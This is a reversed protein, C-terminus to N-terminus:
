SESRHAGIRNLLGHLGAAFEQEFRDETLGGRLRHIVPYQEPDVDVLDAVDDADAIERRTTTDRTPSISGPVPDGPDVLDNNGEQTGAQFSGDGPKPDAIVM